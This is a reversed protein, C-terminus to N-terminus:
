LRGAVCIRHGAECEELSIDAELFRQIVNINTTTHLTPKCTVFEGGAGLALPLLLQDALHEDVPVEADLYRKAEKVAARAVREAPKGKEGFGTFVETVHEAQVVISVVNGPGPSQTDELVELQRSKLSLLRAVTKLEREAIHRPLRSVLASARIDTVRGRELLQFRRFKRAPQVTVRLKGGGAPYFGPRELSIEVHPGLLDILPLFAREVFEFPPAMANHTGGRLTVTSPGDAAILVPLVTQLVLTTSGATGIDFEYDGPRVRGPAFTFERSHLEDGTLKASGVEAAARVSTLHQRQLGPRSRKARVNVARFPQGTALSLSLSSRIVQGGGEGQSGDIEIM